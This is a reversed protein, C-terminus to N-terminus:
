KYDFGFITLNHHLFLLKEVNEVLLKKRLDNVILGATSFLREPESSSAQPPFDKQYDCNNEKCFAVRGSLTFYDWIFSM